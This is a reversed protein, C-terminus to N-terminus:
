AHSAVPVGSCLAVAKELESLDNTARMEISTWCQVDAAEVASLISATVQQDQPVPMLNPESIHIHSIKHHYESLKSSASAQQGDSLISGIDFNLTIAPHNVFDVFQFTETMTTLFNTGYITPNPEMALVCRHEAAIDALKRFINKAHRWADLRSTDDPVVRNKPAGVVLNPIQLRGALAIARMLASEFKEIESRSGFLKAESFGYFLSQMSVLQLGHEKVTELEAVLRAQSPAMVDDAGSFMIGPAIELGSVGYSRLIALAAANQEYQWAINSVALKIM